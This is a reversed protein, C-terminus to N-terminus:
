KIIKIKKYYNSKVYGGDVGSCYNNMICKECEKYKKFFCFLDEVSHKELQEEISVRVIKRKKREETGNNKIKAYNDIYCLPFNWLIMNIKPIDFIETCKELAKKLDAVKDPLTEKLLFNNTKKHYIMRFEITCVGKLNNDEILTKIKEAIKDLFELNGKYITIIIVFPIRLHILNKLGDYRKKAKNSKSPLDNISAFVKSKRKQQENKFNSFRKKIKEAYELNDLAILNTIFRFGEGKNKLYDLIKFFDPHLTPEGGSLIVYSPDYIKELYEFNNKFDSFNLAPKKLKISEHEVCFPCSDSCESIIKFLFSFSEKKNKQNEM